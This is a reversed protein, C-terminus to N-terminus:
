VRALPRRFPIVQGLPAEPGPPKYGGFHMQVARTYRKDDKCHLCQNISTMLQGHVVNQLVKFGVFNCERCAM